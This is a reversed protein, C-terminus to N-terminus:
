FVLPRNNQCCTFILNVHTARNSLSLDYRSPANSWINKKLEKHLLQIRNQYPLFNQPICKGPSLKPLKMRTDHHTCTIFTMTGSSLSFFVELCSPQIRLRLGNSRKPIHKKHIKGEIGVRLFLGEFSLEIM